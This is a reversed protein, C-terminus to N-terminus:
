SMTVKCGNFMHPGFMGMLVWMQWISWGEKNEVPEETLMHPTEKYIRHGEETLQVKVYHNANFKIDM